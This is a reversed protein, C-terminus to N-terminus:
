DGYIRWYITGSSAVSDSLYVYLTGGNVYPTGRLLSGANGLILRKGGTEVFVFYTQDPDITTLNVTLVATGKSYAKSGSKVITPYKRSSHFSIDSDFM